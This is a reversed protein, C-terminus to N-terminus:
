THALANEYLQVLEGLTVPMIAGDDTGFPDVGLQDELNAVLIAICLSDLGLEFLLLDDTLPALKKEQEAAVKHIQDFIVSHVQM